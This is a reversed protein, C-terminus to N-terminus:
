VPSRPFPAAGHARTGPLRRPAPHLPFTTSQIQLESLMRDQDTEGQGIGVLVAQSTAPPSPSPGPFNTAVERDRSGSPRQASLNSGLTLSGFYLAQLARAPSRPDARSPSEPKPKPPLSPLCAHQRLQPKPRVPAASPDVERNGTLTWVLSFRGKGTSRWQLARLSASSPNSLRTCPVSSTPSLDPSHCM